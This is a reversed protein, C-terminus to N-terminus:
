DKTFTLSFYAVNLTDLLYAVHESATDLNDFYHIIWRHTVPDKYNLRYM